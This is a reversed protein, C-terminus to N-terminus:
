TREDDNLTHSSSATSGTMKVKGGKSQTTTTSAGVKLKDYIEAFEEVDVRGSSDSVHKLAERTEDYSYGQAVFAKSVDPKSLYGSDDASLSSKLNM